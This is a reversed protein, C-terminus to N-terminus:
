DLRKEMVHYTPVTFGPHSRQGVIEFGVKQFLSINDTLVLRVGLELCGMGRARAFREAEALLSVALGLRRRSPDVALRGIYVRDPRLEAFICAIPAGSVEALFAAGKGMAAALTEPTEAHAGSPPTLRGVYGAFARHILDALAAADAAVAPRLVMKEMTETDM